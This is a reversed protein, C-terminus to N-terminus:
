KKHVTWESEEETVWLRKNDWGRESEKFLLNLAAMMKWNWNKSKMQKYNLYNDEAKLRVWFNKQAVEWLLYMKRGQFFDWVSTRDPLNESHDRLFSFDEQPFPGRRKRAKM